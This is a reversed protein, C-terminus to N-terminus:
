SGKEAEGQGPSPDDVGYANGRMVASVVLQGMGASPELDPGFPETIIAPQTPIAERPGNKDGQYAAFPLVKFDDHQAKVCSLVTGIALASAEGGGIALGGSVGLMSSPPIASSGFESARFMAAANKVARNLIAM